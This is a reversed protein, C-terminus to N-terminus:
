SIQRTGVVAFLDQGEFLWKVQYDSDSIDGCELLTRMRPILFM